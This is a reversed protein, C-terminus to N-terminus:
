GLVPPGAAPAGRKREGPPGPDLMLGELGGRFVVQSFGPVRSSLVWLWYRSLRM